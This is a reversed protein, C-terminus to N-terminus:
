AIARRLNPPVRIKLYQVSNAAELAVRDLARKGALYNIWQPRGPVKAAMFVFVGQFASGTNSAPANM